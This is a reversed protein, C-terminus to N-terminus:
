LGNMLFEGVIQKFQSSHFGDFRLVQNHQITEVHVEYMVEKFESKKAEIYTKLRHAFAEDHRLAWQLATTGETTKADIDLQFLGNYSELLINLRDDSGESCTAQLINMGTYPEIENPDLGLHCVYRFMSMYKSPEHELERPLPFHMPDVLSNNITKIYEQQKKYQLESMVDICNVLLHGKTIDGGLEIYVEIPYIIRAKAMYTLDILQVLYSAGTKGNVLKNLDAGHMQLATLKEKFQFIDQSPKLTRSVKYCFWTLLTHEERNRAIFTENIEIPTIRSLLFEFIKLACSRWKDMVCELLEVASFHTDELLENVKELNNAHCAFVIKFISPTYEAIHQKYEHARIFPYTAM